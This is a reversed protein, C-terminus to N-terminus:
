PFLCQSYFPVRKIFSDAIYMVKRHDNIEFSFLCISVYYFTLQQPMRETKYFMEVRM